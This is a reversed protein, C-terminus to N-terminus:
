RYCYLITNESTIILERGNFNLAYKGNYIYDFNDSGFIRLTDEDMQWQGVIPNSQFGPLEIIGNKKFEISEECEGSFILRIHTSSPVYNIRKYTIHSLCWSSNILREKTTPLSIFYAPVGIFLLASIFLIIARTSFNLSKIIPIKSTLNDLKIIWDNQSEETKEEKGDNIFGNQILLERAKEYDKEVVELKIGGIANSYFNHVQITMEDRVFCEIEQSELFSKAVFLDTPYTFVAVTQFHNM